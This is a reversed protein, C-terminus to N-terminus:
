TLLILKFSIAVASVLITTITLTKNKLVEKTDERKKETYTSM